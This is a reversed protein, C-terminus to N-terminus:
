SLYRDIILTKKNCGKKQFCIMMYNSLLTIAV